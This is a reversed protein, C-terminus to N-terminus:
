GHSPGPSRGAAAQVLVVATSLVFATATSICQWVLKHDLLVFVICVKCVFDDVGIASGTSVDRLEQCM